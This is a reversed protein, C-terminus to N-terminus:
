LALSFRFWLAAGSSSLATHSHFRKMSLMWIARPMPMSRVASHTTPKSVSSLPTTPTLLMMSMVTLSRVRSNPMRLAM